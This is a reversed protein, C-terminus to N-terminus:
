ITLDDLSAPAGSTAPVNLRADPGLGALGALIVNLELSAWRPAYRNRGDIAALAHAANEQRMAADRSRACSALLRHLLDACEDNAARRDERASVYGRDLGVVKDAAAREAEERARKARRSEIIEAVRKEREAVLEAGYQIEAESKETRDISTTSSM